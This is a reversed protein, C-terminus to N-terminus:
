IRIYRTARGTGIKKIRKSKTMEGLVKEITTVSVDPLIQKIEAKSIPTIRNMVTAEVRASKNVKKSNLTAFRMDLERYCMTLMLLSFEIFPMYTNANDNWGQSCVRLTEYYFARQKNIQEELSIYKTVYHGCKYLMLLTLLRSLRGNGDSFPHVCLFDLVVCPVLVVDDIQSDSVAEKYALVLQEIAKETKSAPTPRFRVSREGEANIELIANDNQKFKCESIPDSHRMVIEHLKLITNKDFNLNKYNQHIENLADRYGAIELEDHGLPTTTKNVIGEIRQDTTTIGEIANSSKVSQIKAIQELETYAKKFDHERIESELQFKSIAATMSIISPSYINEKLFNYDFRRM